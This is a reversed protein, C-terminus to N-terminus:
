RILIFTNKFKKNKFKKKFKKFFGKIAYNQHVQGNNKIEVDNFKLKNKLSLAKFLAEKAAFRKAFCEIQKKKKVHKLKM